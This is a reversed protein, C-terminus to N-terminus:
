VFIDAIGISLQNKKQKPWAAHLIKTGGGPISGVGRANSSHVRLWQVVLSTGVTSEQSNFSLPMM